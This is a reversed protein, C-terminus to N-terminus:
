TRASPARPLADWRPRTCMRDLAATKLTSFPAFANTAPDFALMEGDLICDRVTPHAGFGAADIHPTLSGTHATAGYLDTYEKGRRSFYRYSGGQRHLQMREGDLKVEMAFPREGMHAPIAALAERAALMPKFPVFLRVDQRARTLPRQTAGRGGGGGEGGKEIPGRAQHAVRIDPNKLDDCVKQLDSCVNYLALADPHYLDLVTNESVGLVM